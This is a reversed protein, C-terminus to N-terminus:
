PIRETTAYVLASIAIWAVFVGGRTTENLPLDSVGVVMLLLGYVIVMILALVLLEIVAKM